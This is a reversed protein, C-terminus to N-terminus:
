VAGASELEEIKAPSYGLEELIPRTHEGLGPAHSKLAGPTLSFKPAIGLQKYAGWSAHVLDVVMAREKMLQSGMAEGLNLVPECCCDADKFREVWEAMSKQLFFKSVSEILEVQHPGPELYLPTDWEPRGAANCFSKWFQPEIAGLSMFRGDGTRYINYCAIGQNLMDDGTSPVKGDAIFKGWRMCNWALAGDTMSIDIFQGKGLRERAFLAAMISFAAM